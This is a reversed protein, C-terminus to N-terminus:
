TPGDKIIATAQGDTVAGEEAVLGEAPGVTAAGVAAADRTLHVRGEGDAMAREEAVLGKGAVAAGDAFRSVQDPEAAAAADIAIVRGERDRITGEGAVPGAAAVAAPAADAGAGGAACRLGGAGADEALPSQHQAATRERAVLGDATGVGAEVRRRWAASAVDAGRDAPAQFIDPQGRHRVAGELVVIGQ